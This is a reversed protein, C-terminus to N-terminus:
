KSDKHQQGREHGSAGTEGEYVSNKEDMNNACRLCELRYGISNGRCSSGRDKRGGECPFCSENDCRGNGLPNSRADNCIKNGGRVVVKLCIGLDTKM